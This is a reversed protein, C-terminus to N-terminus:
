ELDSMVESIKLFSHQAWQSISRNVVDNTKDVDYVTCCDLGMLPTQVKHLTTVFQGEPAYVELPRGLNSEKRL